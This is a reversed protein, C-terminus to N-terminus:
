VCDKGRCAKVCIGCIHQGIFPLRRFIDLKKHCADADFERSSEKVAGAPCADICRRCEGCGNEMPEGALYPADTLVTAYRVRGGFKPHVLLTPRGIWGLGAFYGILRHSVLGRRSNPETIQSAPVPLARYGARQIALALSMGARDLAYNVQRYVHFYLPTPRDDIQDVVADALRIGFAVGRTFEPPAEAMASPEEARLAALDAVGIADIDNQKAFEQLDPLRTM